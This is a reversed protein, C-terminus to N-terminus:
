EAPAPGVTAAMGAALLAILMSTTAFPARTPIMVQDFSSLMCAPAGLVLGSLGGLVVNL